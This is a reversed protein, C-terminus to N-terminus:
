DVGGSCGIFSGITSNSLTCVTSDGNIEGVSPVLSMPAESSPISDCGGGNRSVMQCRKFKILGHCMIPKAPLMILIQALM